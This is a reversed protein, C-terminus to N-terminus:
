YTLNLKDFLIKNRQKADCIVKTFPLVEVYSKSKITDYFRFFGQGDSTPTFSEEELIYRLTPTIDAVIYCYFPTNYKAEITRGMKKTKGEITERIYKRVQAIPDKKTDGHKYDNRGPKKFEIITFSEFPSKNESFLTANEFVEDKKIILDIRDRSNSNLQEVNKFLKDSALLTNFTLREDLLWLNQKDTSVTQSTERIPFFLSHIIDEDEFKENENLEILRDLLDIVSRRHVIYRALDSQGIENFEALFKEYLEKYKALSTIDKKKEIVDIGDEKVRIKWQSEIEYLKIDLENKTLGAPLKEVKEKNHYIVNHYNPFEKEIIPLYSELKETRLKKLFDKLLDETCVLAERRIKALSIEHNEIEDVDEEVSFNFGTREDNVNRNLFDSVIFIQFYYPDSQLSDKIMSKLDNIYTYLGEEKVSREHACYHIKHSKAQYAKSIFIKFNMENVTFEKSLIQKEFEQNFLKTLNIKFNNQNKIIIEPEKKEIFVLQFHTIIQRSVEIITQPMNGNYEEELKSLTLSTGTTKKNSKIDAEYNDFGEKSKKYEFKRLLFKDNEIYISEIIIKQFAKLCVLRGIGKGGISAKHESDFEQFSNYNEVDLGIGNDIIKFSNIPYEEINNIELLLDPSGNRIVEIQIKGLGENNYKEKKEAIAHMANSIVEFLPLLPRTKPLHLKNVRNRLNTSNKPM